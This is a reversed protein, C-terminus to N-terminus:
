KDIKKFKCSLKCLVSGALIRAVGMFFLSVPIGFNIGITLISMTLEQNGAFNKNIYHIILSKSIFILVCLGLESIGHLIMIINPLISFSEHIPKQSLRKRIYLINKRLAIHYYLVFGCIAFAIICLSVIALPTLAVSYGAINGNFFRYLDTALTNLANSAISLVLLIIVGVSIICSIIINILEAVSLIKYGSAKPRAGYTHIQSNVAWAGIMGILLIVDFEMAGILKVAFTLTLLIAFFVTAPAKIVSAITETYEDPEFVKVPQSVPQTYVPQGYAPQVPQTYVSQGYAPQVPQTYTPQTYVPQAQPIEPQPSRCTCNEGESLQRGCYICFM